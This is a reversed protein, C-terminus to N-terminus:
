PVRRARPAEIVRPQMDCEIGGVKVPKYSGSAVDVKGQYQKIIQQIQPDPVVTGDPMKRSHQDFSGVTVISAYRDHFEYAEVGMERLAKCLTITAQEGLELESAKKGAEFVRMGGSQRVSTGEYKTQGKFTAIQVTYRRPNRLLTYPRKSNISEIFEDVYGRQNDKPLMPNLLPFSMATTKGTNKLSEPTCKQVEALTKECQKEELALFNGILVAYETGSGSNLYKYKTKFYPNHEPKFEKSADYTFTKEHVYANWKFSQRFELVLTHADQRATPGSFSTVYILYPGKTETLAYENNPDTEVTKGINKVFDLPGAACVSACALVAAATMWRVVITKEM